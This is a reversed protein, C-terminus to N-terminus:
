QGFGTQKGGAVRINAGATYSAKDSLLWAIANAVEEPEGLRGIPIAKQPDVSKRLEVTMDTDCMGPSVTNIRIGQKM